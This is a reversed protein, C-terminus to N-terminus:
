LEALTLRLHRARGIARRALAKDAGYTRRQSLAARACSLERVVEARLAAAANADLSPWDLGYNRTVLVSSKGFSWSAVIFARSVAQTAAKLTDRAAERCDHHAQYYSVRTDGRLFSLSPAYTTDHKRTM